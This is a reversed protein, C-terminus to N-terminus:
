KRYKSSISFTAKKLYIYNRYLYRFPAQSSLLLITLSYNGPLANIVRSFSNYKMGISKTLQKYKLIKLQM